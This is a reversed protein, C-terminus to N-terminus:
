REFRGPERQCLHQRAYCLAELPISRLCVGRPQKMECTVLQTIYAITWPIIGLRSQDDAHCGEHAEVLCVDKADGPQFVVTKGAYTAAKPSQGVFKEIITATASGARESLVVPGDDKPVTAVHGCGPLALFVSLLALACAALRRM